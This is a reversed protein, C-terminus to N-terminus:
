EPALACDDKGRRDKPDRNSRHKGAISGGLAKEEGKGM